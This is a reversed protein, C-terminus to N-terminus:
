APLQSHAFSCRRPCSRIKAVPSDRRGKPDRLHQWRRAKRQREEATEGGGRECRPRVASSARAQSGFRPPRYSERASSSLAHANVLRGAPELGPVVSLLLDRDDSDVCAANAAQSAGCASCFEVRVVIWRGVRNWVERIKTRYPGLPSRSLCHPVQFRPHQCCGILRHTPQTHLGRALDGAAM